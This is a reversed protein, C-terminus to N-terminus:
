LAFIKYFYKNRYAQLSNTRQYKKWNKYRLAVHNHASLAYYKQITRTIKIQFLLELIYPSIHNGSFNNM